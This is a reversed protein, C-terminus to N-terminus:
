STVQAIAPGLFPALSASFTTTLHHSDFYVIVGGILGHCTTADCFYQALPVYSALAPNAQALTSTITPLLVSSRPRTCPDYIRRSQAICTPDNTPRMGPVDQIVVTRIGAHALVRWTGLVAQRAQDVQGTSASDGVLFKKDFAYAPFVVEDLHPLSLLHRRVAASWELCASSPAVSSIRTTILGTCNIRLATVLHWRHVQAYLRLAPVLRWAHSNGVLAITRTPSRTTGFSCWLPTAADYKQLCPDDPGDSAAFAPDLGAPRAYPHACQNASVM